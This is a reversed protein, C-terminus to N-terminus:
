WKKRTIMGIGIIFFLLGIIFTFATYSILIPHPNKISILTYGFFSLFNFLAYLIAFGGLVFPIKTIEHHQEEVIGDLKLKSAAKKLKSKEQLEEEM